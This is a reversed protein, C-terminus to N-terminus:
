KSKTESKSQRIRELDAKLKDDIIAKDLNKALLLSELFTYDYRNNILKAENLSADRFNAGNLKANELNAKYLSSRKLNARMLHTNKLSAGNLSANKINARNLYANELNAGKLHTKELNSMILKANELHSGSLNAYKLNAGKLKANELHSDSLDAYKINAMNLFTNELHVGPLDAHELNAGNLNKRANGRLIEEVILDDYAVLTRKLAYYFLLVIAFVALSLAGFINIKYSYNVYRLLLLDLIISVTYVIFIFIFFKSKLHERVSKPSVDKNQIKIQLIIFNLTFFIGFIAAQVQSLASLIYRADEREAWISPQHPTFHTSSEICYYLCYVILASVVFLGIIWLVLQQDHSLNKSIEDDVKTGGRRLWKAVRLVLAPTKM